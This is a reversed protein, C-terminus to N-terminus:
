MSRAAISFHIKSCFLQKKANQSTSKKNQAAEIDKASSNEKYPVVLNCADGRSKLRRLRWLVLFLPTGSFVNMKCTKKHDVHLRSAPTFSSNQASETGNISYTSQQSLFQSWFETRTHGRIGKSTFQKRDRTVLWSARMATSWCIIPPLFAFLGEIDAVHISLTKPTRPCTAILHTVLSVDPILHLRREVQFVCQFFM